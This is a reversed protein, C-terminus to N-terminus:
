PRTTAAPCISWCFTTPGLIDVFLAATVASDIGGSLGITM